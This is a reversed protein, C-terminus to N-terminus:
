HHEVLIKELDGRLLDVTGLHQESQKRAFLEVAVRWQLSAFTMLGNFGLENVEVKKRVPSKSAAARAGAASSPAASKLCCQATHWSLPWILIGVRAVRLSRGRACIM